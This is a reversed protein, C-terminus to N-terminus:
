FLLFNYLIKSLNLVFLARDERVLHLTCQPQRHSKQINIAFQLLIKM